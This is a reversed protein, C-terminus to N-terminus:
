PRYEGDTILERKNIISFYHLTQQILYDLSKNKSIDIMMDNFSNDKTFRGIKFTANTLAVIYKISFINTLSLDILVDTKETYFKQVKDSKPIYFYNLDKKCFFDFGNILYYKQPIIKSNVFGIAKVKKNLSVLYDAFSKIKEFNDINTADFIIDITVASDLNQTKRNRFTKKLKKKM